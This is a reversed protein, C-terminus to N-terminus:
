DKIKIKQGLMNELEHIKQLQLEAPALRFIVEISYNYGLTEFSAVLDSYNQEQKLYDVDNQSYSIICFKNQIIAVNGMQICISHLDYLGREKMNLLVKGWISRESEPEVIKRL